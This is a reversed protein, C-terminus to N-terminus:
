LLIEVRKDSLSNNRYGIEKIRSMWMAMNAVRDNM